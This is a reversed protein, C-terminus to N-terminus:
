SKKQTQARSRTTAAAVGPSNRFFNESVFLERTGLGIPNEITRGGHFSDYGESESEAKQRGTQEITGVHIKAIAIDGYSKQVGCVDM